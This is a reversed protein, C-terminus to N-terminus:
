ADYKVRHREYLQGQSVYCRGCVENVSSMFTPMNTGMGESSGFPVDDVMLRYENARLVAESKHPFLRLFFQSGEDESFFKETSRYEEVWKRIQEGLETRTLDKGEPIGFHLHFWFEIGPQNYVIHIKRRNALALQSPLLEKKIELDKPNVVCWVESFGEIRRIRIAEKVMLELNVAEPSKTVVTMNAYRCDRRMQLFYRREIENCTYVLLPNRPERLDHKRAM